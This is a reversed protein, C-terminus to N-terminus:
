GYGGDVHLKEAPTTTGIGVNGDDRVFFRSAGTSDTINLTAATTTGVGQVQLRAGPVMTGIGVNSYLVASIPAAPSVFWSPNTTDVFRTAGIIGAKSQTTTGVNIPAPVNAGPPPAGPETWAAMIVYYGVAFLLVLVGFTLSILKPNINITM